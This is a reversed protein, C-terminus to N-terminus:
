IRRLVAAGRDYHYGGITGDMIRQVAEDIVFVPLLFWERVTVPRGFRDKIEIDLKAPEFFRHLLNELKVRNINALQYTAVVEVDALLYTSENRANAIRRKVDNGTVGIKHILERNKQVTPHDSLSRLVYITGSASDDNDLEGSFLPGLNPETVFRSREDKYMSRILSRRLLNSETGNSFIVRLRADEQGGTIKLPEGVEAVYATQGGVILFQHAKIAAQMYGEEKRFRITERLGSAIENSLQDFLPEFREFDECVARQAVEEAARKEARSKVHRLNTISDEDPPLVGLENLLETDSLDEPLTLEATTEATLLDQHDLETLLDVCDPQQRIRDLRVAYRREFIDRGEGPEPLRQHETVFRQIEEFGAIIRQERPTRTVVKKPEPAIGLEKLMDADGTTFQDKKSM